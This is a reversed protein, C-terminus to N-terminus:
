RTTYSVSIDEVSPARDPNNAVIIVKWLLHDGDENFIITANLIIPTFTVGGNNSVYYSISGADKNIETSTLKVTDITEDKNIKESIIEYPLTSYPLKYYYLERDGNLNTDSIYLYDNSITIQSMNLMHPDDTYMSLTQHPELPQSIDLLTISNSYFSQYDNDKIILYNNNLPIFVPESYLQFQESYPFNVQQQINNPDSIDFTTMTGEENLVYMADGNYAIEDSVYSDTNIFKIDNPNEINYYAVKKDIQLALYGNNITLNYKSLATGSITLNDDTFIPNSSSKNIDYIDLRENQQSTSPEYNLVFLYNGRKAVALYSGRVNSGLQTIYKPSIPNSIDFLTLYHMESNDTTLILYNENDIFSMKCPTFNNPFNLKISTGRRLSLDTYETPNSDWINWTNLVSCIDNTSYTVNNNVILRSPHDPLWISDDYSMGLSNDMIDIGLEEDIFFTYGYTMKFKNVFWPTEIKGRLSLSRNLKEIPINYFLLDGENSQYIKKFSVHFFNNMNLLYDLGDISIKQTAPLYRWYNSYSQKDPPELTAVYNLQQSQSSEEYLKIDYPKIIGFNGGVAFMGLINDAMIVQKIEGAMNFVQVEIKDRNSVSLYISNNDVISEFVTNSDIDIVTPTFEIGRTNDATGVRLYAPMNKTSDPTTVIAEIWLEERYSDITMKKILHITYDNFATLETTSWGSFIGGKNKQSYDLYFRGNNSRLLYLVDQIIAMQETYIGKDSVAEVTSTNLIKTDKNNSYDFETIQLINGSPSPSSTLVYTSYSGGSVAVDLYRTDEQNNITLITNKDSFNGLPPKITQVTSTESLDSKIDIDSNNKLRVSSISIIFLIFFLVLVGLMRMNIPSINITYKTNNQNDQSSDNLPDAHQTTNESITPQQELPESPNTANEKEEIQRSPPKPVPLDLTDNSFIHTDQPTYAVSSKQQVANKSITDQQELSESSSTSVEIEEKEKSPPKPVPMDLIDSTFSQSDQSKNKLNKESSSNNNKDM